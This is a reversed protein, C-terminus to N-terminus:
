DNHGRTKFNYVKGLQGSIVIYLYKTQRMWWLYRDEQFINGKYIHILSYSEIRNMFKRFETSEFLWFETLKSFQTTVRRNMCKVHLGVLLFPLFLYIFLLHILGLIYLDWPFFKCVIFICDCLSLKSIITEYFLYVLFQYFFCVLM